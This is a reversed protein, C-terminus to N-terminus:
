QVLAALEPPAGEFAFPNLFQRRWMLNRDVDGLQAEACIPLWNDRIIEIQHQALAMADDNSLLFLPAAKLCTDIRSLRENGVILMAQTAENGARAQPCIDYAPTLALEHGNWYAAHNRAHDDTNGCLVNFLMRAFLEKLTARPDSFRHRILTAFDEYSAYRAMMEDLAFLTLASVMARRQWGQTARVRDFREILLVDKGGVQKLTVPAAHIGVGSALRMAIYEAKVVSYVDSQSSFKAIFKRNHTTIMAKPRAGGISSGHFLARELDPSLPVGREVSAVANLLDSFSATATERPVYETPSLQFDLAGIRDSGSELLYTMEDLEGTDIETGRAGLKRNIIVRRGWADPAADRISGPMSLGNALPLAGRQLPLEPAYLPIATERALYSQGYNFLIQDGAAALRGAVVPETAGPLWVWVFAEKYASDSTM